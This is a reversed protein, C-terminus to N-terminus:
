CARGAFATNLQVFCRRADLEAAHSVSHAVWVTSEGNTPVIECGCRPRASSTGLDIALVM